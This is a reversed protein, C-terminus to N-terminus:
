KKGGSKRRKEREQRQREQEEAQQDRKITKFPSETPYDDPGYEGSIAKRIEKPTPM